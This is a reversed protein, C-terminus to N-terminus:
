LTKPDLCHWIESWIEKEYIRDIDEKTYLYDLEGKFIDDPLLEFYEHFFNLLMFYRCELGYIVEM